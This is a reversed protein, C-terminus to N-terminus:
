QRRSRRGGRRSSNDQAQHREDVSLSGVSSVCLCTSLDNNLRHSGHGAPFLADWQWSWRLSLAM